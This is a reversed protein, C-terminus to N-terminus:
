ILLPPLEHMRATLPPRREHFLQSAHRLYDHRHQALV